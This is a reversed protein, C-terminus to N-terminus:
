TPHEKHAIRFASLHACPINAHPETNSAHKNSPSPPHTPSPLFSATMIMLSHRRLTHTNSKALVRIPANLRLHSQRTTVFNKLRKRTKLCPTYTLRKARFYSRIAMSKTNPIHFYKGM